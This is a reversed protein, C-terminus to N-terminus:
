WRRAKAGRLSRAPRAGFHSSVHIKRPQVPRADRAPRRDRRQTSGCGGLWRAPADLVPAGVFILSSKEAKWAAEKLLEVVALNPNKTSESKERIRLSSQCGSVFVPSRGAPGPSDGQISMSERCATNSRVRRTASCKRYQDKSYERSIARHETRDGCQWEKRSASSTSRCAHSHTDTSQIQTRLPGSM